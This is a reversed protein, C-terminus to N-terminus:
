MYGAYLSFANGSLSGVIALVVLFHLNLMTLKVDTKLLVLILMFVTVYNYIIHMLQM